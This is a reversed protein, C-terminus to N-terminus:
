GGFVSDSLILFTFKYPTVLPLAPVGCCSKPTDVAYFM